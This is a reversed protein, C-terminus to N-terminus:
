VGDSLREYLHVHLGRLMEDNMYYNFTYHVKSSYIGNYEETSKYFINKPTAVKAFALIIHRYKINITINRIYNKAIPTNYHEGDDYMSYLNNNVINDLRMYM